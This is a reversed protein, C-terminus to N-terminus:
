AMGFARTAPRKACSQEWCHCCARSLTLLCWLKVRVAEVDATDVLALPTGQSPPGVLAGKLEQERDRLLEAEEFHGGRVASDKAELVQLTCVGLTSTVVDADHPGHAEAARSPLGGQPCACHHRLGCDAIYQPQYTCDVCVCVRQHLAHTWWMPRM